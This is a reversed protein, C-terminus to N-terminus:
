KEDLSNGLFDDDDKLFSVELAEENIGDENSSFEV